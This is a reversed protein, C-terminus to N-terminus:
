KINPPLFLLKIQRTVLNGDILSQDYNNDLYKLLGRSTQDFAVMEKSLYDESKARLVMSRSHFLRHM